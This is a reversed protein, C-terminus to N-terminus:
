TTFHEEISPTSPSHTNKESWLFLISYILKKFPSSSDFLPKNFVKFNNTYIEVFNHTHILYMNM